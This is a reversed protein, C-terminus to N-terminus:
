RGHEAVAHSCAPRHLVLNPMGFRETKLNVVRDPRAPEVRRVEKGRRDDPRLIGDL